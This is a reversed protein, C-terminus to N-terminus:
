GYAKFRIKKFRDSHQKEKIISVKVPIKYRELKGCCYKRMQSKFNKVDENNKFSVKACVIEGLIPNKEGYITVESINDIGQIVNEVESPYVKEGGVNIIESKRGLIKIYEGRVEVSDGTDFWGDKTFPSPANIYGLMASKAKIQLIGDVIRTQYGEGGIKFWLSDSGESKSRLIGLESLGYTQQLRIGPFLDHFRNLTIEPMPETGYSITKLSSIDYRKYAESLLILNVFSPSTPLLEVKHREVASLINDPTRDKISVICGANSLIYLLTNIGGIHDYLLFTIAKVRHRPTKFKELLYIFDHVAAKSKGTSGSSFLVLGPHNIKQLKRFFKHNASQILKKLEFEDNKGISVCFEGQAIKIFERKKSEVASSLPVLICSQEILALFLAIANPSFDAELVTVTGAKIGNDSLTKKWFLIRELLWKYKFIQNKWIIAEENQNKEFVNILFDIFM